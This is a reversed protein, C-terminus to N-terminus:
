EFVSTYIIAVPIISLAIQIGRIGIKANGTISNKPCMSLPNGWHFFPAFSPPIMARTTINALRRSEIQTIM